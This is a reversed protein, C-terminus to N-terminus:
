RALENQPVFPYGRFNALNGFKGSCTSQAKDCGQTVTFTDGASPAAPFATVLAFTGGTTFARVVRALGANVGATFTLVGMDFLGTAAGTSATISAATSGGTATLGTTFSAKVLGCGSDFLTHVCGPRILTRPMPQDLLELDSNVPLEIANRQVKPEGVRGSFLIVTGASTDTWSALYARELVVRAGDLAGGQAAAPWSIGNLTNTSAPLLTVKMSDVVLGRVLKVTARTFRPGSSLYTHGNVVVDHDASTLYIPSGVLPTLTLVDAVYFQSASDLLAKLAVSATRM